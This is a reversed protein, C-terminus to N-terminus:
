AALRWGWKRDLFVFLSVNDPDSRMFVLEFRWFLDGYVWPDDEISWPLVSFVPNGHYRFLQGMIWWLLVHLREVRPRSQVAVNCKARLLFSSRLTHLWPFTVLCPFCFDRHRMCTNFRELRCHTRMSTPSFWRRGRRRNHWGRAGMSAEFCEMRTMIGCDRNMIAM